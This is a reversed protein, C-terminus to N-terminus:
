AAEQEEAYAKDVLWPTVELDDAKDTVDVEVSGNTGNLLATVSVIEVGGEAPEFRTATRPKSYRYELRYSLDDLEIEVSKSMPQM